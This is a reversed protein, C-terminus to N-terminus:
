LGAEKTQAKRSFLIGSDGPKTDEAVVLDTPKLMTELAHRSTMRGKVPATIYEGFEYPFAESLGSEISFCRLTYGLSGSPIDFYHVEGAGRAQSQAVSPCEGLKAPARSLEPFPFKSAVYIGAVSILAVLLLGTTLKATNM